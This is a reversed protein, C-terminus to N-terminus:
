WFLSARQFKQETAREFTGKEVFGFLPVWGGVKDIGEYSSTSKKSCYLDLGNDLYACYSFLYIYGKEKSWKHALRQLAGRLDKTRRGFKLIPSPCLVM